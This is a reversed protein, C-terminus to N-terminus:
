EGVTVSVCLSNHVEEAKVSRLELSGRKDLRGVRPRRARHCGHGLLGVLACRYPEGTGRQEDALECLAHIPCDERHNAGLASRPSGDTGSGRCEGSLDNREAMQALRPREAGSSREVPSRVSVIGKAVIWCESQPLALNHKPVAETTEGRRAPRQKLGAICM